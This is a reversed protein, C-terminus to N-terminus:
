KDFPQWSIIAVHIEVTTNIEKKITKKIEELDESNRIPKDWEVSGFGISAKGIASSYVFSVHIM